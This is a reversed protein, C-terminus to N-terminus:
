FKYNFRVGYRLSIDDKNQEDAAQVEFTVGMHDTKEITLGATGVLAGKKKEPTVLSYYGESGNKLKAKNGDYNDGFEYVYKIDGSLKVSVDDKTYIQQRGKVGAGAQISLYDNSKVHVELGGNKGKRETFGKTKGYEADLLLYANLERENNRYLERNLRNDFSITYSDYKGKNDFTQHLALKRETIHRNYGLEGRTLLTTKNDDSVNNLWHAGARLSYVEEKSGGDDKFKFKSDAFGLSYGSKEGEGKESENMYMLGITTYDYDDIGTTGDKYDGDTYILSFKNSEDTFNNSSEMEAFSRDFAENIDTMRSQITAYVDGRTQAIKRETEVAFRNDSLGDLYANLGKLIEADKGIGGSNALINDLGKDLADYQSGITLDAYPVKGIVLKGNDTIKSTFMPSTVAELRGDITGAATKVFGEIEYSIGNGTLAFNPLLKVEGTVNEANFLPTNTTIDVVAGDVVVAGATTLTGGIAIYKDNIYITGDPHIIVAGTSDSSEIDGFISGAGTVVIDGSNTLTGAGEIGVGNNVNITGTNNLNSGAGIHVGAGEEVNITGNNYLQGGNYVEMGTSATETKGGGLNITGNNDARGGYQVLIGSGGNDVNITGENVFLSGDGTVYVGASNEFKVNIVGENVGSSGGALYIGVSHKDGISEGTTITGSSVIHVAGDAFIGIASTGLTMDASSDVLVGGEAKVLNQVYIGYSSKGINWNGSATIDGGGQAKYIAASSIKDKDAVTVDGSYDVDGNGISLIGISSDTGASIDGKALVDADNAYIGVAGKELIIDGEADVKGGFTFIGVGASYIDGRQTISKMAEGYVGIGHTGAKLEGNGTYEGNKLFVGISSNKFEEDATSGIVNLDGNVSISSNEGFVGTNNDGYVSVDGQVTLDSDGKAMLGIKHKGDTGTTFGSTAVGKSNNMMMGITYDGTASLAAASGIYPVNDYYIGISYRDKTGAEVTIVTSAFDPVIEKVYIGIGGNRVTIASDKSNIVGGDAVIGIQNDVLLKGTFNIAAGVSYVYVGDSGVSIKSIDGINVVTERDEAYVGIGKEGASIHTDTSINLTSHMSAAVGVSNKRSSGDKVSINGNITVDAHDVAIVGISENGLSIDGVEASGATGEFVIGTNEASDSTIKESTVSGTNGRVYIGVGGIDDLSINSSSITHSDMLDDTYIGIGSQGVYINGRNIVNAAESYIGLSSNKDSSIGSVRITGENIIDVKDVPLTDGAIAALGIGGSTVSVAGNNIISQEGAAESDYEGMLGVTKEGVSFNGTSYWSGNKAVGFSGSGNIIANGGVTLAGGNNFIGIGGKEGFNFVLEDDVALEARGENIYIGTGGNIAAVTYKATLSAGKPVYIGVGDETSVRGSFTLDDGAGVYVGIGDKADVTVSDMAFKGVGEKLYIGVPNIKDKKGTTVSVGDVSVTNDLIYVGVSDDGVSISKSVASGNKVIAGVTNVGKVDIDFDLVANDGYVGTGGAKTIDISGAKVSDAGTNKLYIGISESSIKGKSGDFSNNEGEVYVATGDKSTITGNNIGASKGDGAIYMGVDGNNISGNNVALAKKSSEAKAAMGIGNLTINKRNDAEGEEVYIGIGDADNMTINGASTYKPSGDVYVGISGSSSAASSIDATNTLVLNDATYIGISGTGTLKIESSNTVAGGTDGRSYYLGINKIGAATNNVTIVGGSAYGGNTLYIGTAKGSDTNLILQSINVAGGDSYIGIAGETSNGRATVEGKVQATDELFLATTNVGEAKGTIDFTNEGKSYIGVAKNVVSVAGKFSSGNELYIGVTRNEAEAVGDVTLTKGQAISIGAQKGYVLINGRSNEQKFSIDEGISASTNEAYVGIGASSNFNIGNQKIEAAAGDKIYIGVGSATNLNIDGDNVVEKGSSYIGTQNLGDMNITSENVLTGEATYMGISGNKALNITGSNTGRNEGKIFIGVGNEGIDLLGKSTLNTNEGYLAIGGDFDRGSIDIQVSREEAGTGKYYIGTKNTSSNEAALVVKDATIESGADASVGIADDGLVLTGLESVTSTNKLYVAVGGKGVSITGSNQVAAKDGYIGVAAATELSDGTSITGSNVVVADTGNENNNKAYIGIAGDGQMVISGSNNINIEGQGATTGFENVLANHERDERYSKGLIGVAQDGGATIGGRNDIISGNVGFIGVGKSNGGATEVEIASGQALEVRGFNMFIGVAGNGKDTRDATVKSGSALKIYTDEVGSASVSSNMELGSIQGDFYKDAYESDTEAKVIVGAAVDIKIKQGLFRRSYFHGDSSEDRSYKDMDSDILLEGGDVAAIKYKDFVETGDTGAQVKIGTGLNKELLNQLDSSILGSRDKLNVAIADNSMMTITTNELTIPSFGTGLELGTARGELIIEGNSLNIKGKGDSYVAYGSGSYRLQAGELNINTNEGFAAAGASGEKVDIKVAGLDIDAGNNGYVALGKVSSSSDDSSIHLNEGLSSIIRGGDSYIGTGGQSAAINVPSYSLEIDGKNFLVSSGKGGASLNGGTIQLEGLNYVASGDVGNYSINGSNKGTNGQAVAMGISNEGGININGRNEVSAGSSGTFDGATLVYLSDMDGTVTRGENLTVKGKEGAQMVSNREGAATLTLDRDLIIEDIDSRILTSEQASKDFNFVEGLKAEDLVMANHNPASTTSNRLFGVNQTGGVLLQIDAANSIPDGTSMSEAISIGVNQKGYLEIVGNSGDFKVLDYYKGGYYKQRYGYSQQGEIVINGIHVDNNPGRLGDADWVKYHGFDIGVSKFAGESIKITGENITQPRKAFHATYYKPIYETDIMIGIMNYGSNLDITGSNKLISTTKGNVVNPYLTLGGGGGSLLQHELGLIGGGSETEAGHLTLNGKFDFTKDKASSSGVMYPNISAFMLFRSISNTKMSYNGTVTVDHDLVDSIFTNFKKKENNYEFEYGGDVALQTNKGATMTGTWSVSQENGIIDIGDSSYETYNMAAIGQASNTMVTVDQGFGTAQYNIEVPTLVTIKPTEPTAPTEPVTIVMPVYSETAAPDAATINREGPVAPQTIVPEKVLVKEVAEPTIISIDVEKPLAPLEIQPKDVTVFEITPKEVAHPREGIEVVPIVANATIDPKIIPYKMSETEIKIEPTNLEKSSHVGVVVGNGEVVRDLGVNAEYYRNVAEITQAFEKSTRDKSKGRRLFDLNFFFQWNKEDEQKTEASNEYNNIDIESSLIINGTILFCVLLAASFGAKRKLAGKLRKEIEQQKM